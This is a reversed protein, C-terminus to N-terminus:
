FKSKNKACQKNNTYKYILFDHAGLMGLRRPLVGVPQLLANALGLPVVVEVATRSAMHFVVVCELVADSQHEGWRLLDLVVCVFLLCVCVRARVCVCPAKGLSSM